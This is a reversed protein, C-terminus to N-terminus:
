SDLRKNTITLEASKRACCAEFLDKFYGLRQNVTNYQIDVQWHKRKCNWWVGEIGSKNNSLMRTNNSQELKTSWKCNSKQYNGNADIRDITLGQGAKGMDNLFNIFSDKWEDCVTIGRGGYYKFAVNDKRYCRDKMCQWSYYTSTNHMGHGKRIDLEGARYKQTYHKNCFDRALFKGDCGNVSCKRVNM